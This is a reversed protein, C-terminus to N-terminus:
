MGQKVGVRSGAACHRPIIDVNAYNVLIEEANSTPRDLFTLEYVASNIALGVAVRRRLM